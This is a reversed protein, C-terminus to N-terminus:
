IVSTPLIPHCIQWHKGIITHILIIKQTETLNWFCIIVTLSFCYRYIKLTCNFSHIQFVQLLLASFAQIICILLLIFINPATYKHIKHQAHQLLPWLRLNELIHIEFIHAFTSWWIFSNSLGVHKDNLQWFEWFLIKFCFANGIEM